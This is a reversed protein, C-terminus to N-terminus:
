YAVVSWDAFCTLGRKMPNRQGISCLGLEEAEVNESRSKGSLLQLLM